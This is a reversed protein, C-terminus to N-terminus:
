CCGLGLACGFGHVGEVLEQVIRCCVWICCYPVVFTVHYEVAVTVGRIEALGSCFGSDASVEVEAVGVFRGVVGCGIPGDM